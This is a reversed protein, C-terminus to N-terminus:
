PNNTCFTYAPIDYTELKEIDVDVTTPYTFVHNLFTVCQYLFGSICILFLLTKFIRRYKSHTSVISSVMGITSEQFVKTAYSKVSRKQSDANNSKEDMGVIGSQFNPTILDM